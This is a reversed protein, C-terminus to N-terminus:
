GMQEYKISGDSFKRVVGDPYIVWTDTGSSHTELSNRITAWTGSRLKEKFEKPTAILIASSTVINKNRELYPLPSYLIDCDKEVEIDVKVRAVPPHGYIKIDGSIRRILKHANADAGICCGHHFSDVKSKLLVSWMLVHFMIKQKETMGYRTGTFGINM